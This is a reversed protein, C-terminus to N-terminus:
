EGEVNLRTPQPLLDKATDETIKLIILEYNQKRSAKPLEVGYVLQEISVSLAEAVVFVQEINRPRQGSMWHYITKSSIGTKRSLAQVSMSNKTLLTKLQKHFLYSRGLASSLTKKSIIGSGEDLLKSIEM